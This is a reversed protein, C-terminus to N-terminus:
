DEDDEGYLPKIDIELMEEQNEDYYAEYTLRGSHHLIVAERLGKDYSSIGHRWMLFAGLALLIVSLLVFVEVNM